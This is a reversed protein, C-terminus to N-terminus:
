TRMNRKSSLNFYLVIPIAVLSLLASYIISSDTFLNASFLTLLIPVIQENISKKFIFGTDRDIKISSSLDMIYLKKRIHAPIGIVLDPSIPLNTEGFADMDELELVRCSVRKNKYQLIVKDMEDIGLLNMNSKTMRVIDLGEDIDYPRRCILSITSKGVYFDSLRQLIKKKSKKISQPVPIIKLHKPYCKSIIKKAESKKDYSASKDLFRDESSYIECLTNFDDSDEGLTDKLTHWQSDSLYQPLELGLCLRQKRSLRITGPALSKDIFIHSKKVVISDHTFANYIEFLTCPSKDINCPLNNYDAESIGLDSERIRDIKQLFVNKFELPKYQCLFINKGENLSLIEKLYATALFEGDDLGKVAKLSVNIYKETDKNLLMAKQNGWRALATESVGIVNLKDAASFRENVLTLPCVQAFLEASSKKHKLVLNGNEFEFTPKRQKM